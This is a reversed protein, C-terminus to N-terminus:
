KVFKHLNGKNLLNASSFRKEMENILHDIYPYLMSREYYKAPSQAPHNERHLQKGTNRHIELTSGSVNAMDTMEEWLSVWRNNDMRMAKLGALVDTINSNATYVEKTSGTLILSENSACLTFLM